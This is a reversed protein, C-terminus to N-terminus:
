GSPKRVDAGVKGVEPEIRFPTQVGRGGNACGVLPLPEPEQGEGRVVSPAPPIESYLWAESFRDASWHGVGVDISQLDDPLPSAARAFPNWPVSV